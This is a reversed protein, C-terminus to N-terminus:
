PVRRGSTLTNRARSATGIRGRVDAAAGAAAVSGGAVSTRASVAAIMTRSSAELMAVRDPREDAVRDLPRTGPRMPVRDRDVTRLRRLRIQGRDAHDRPVPDPRLHDALPQRHEGLRGAAVAEPVLEDREVEAALAVQPGALDQGVRREVVEPAAVGDEQARHAMGADRGPDELLPDQEPEPEVNWWYTM